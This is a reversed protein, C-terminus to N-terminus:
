WGRGGELSWETNEKRIIRFDLERGSSKVFALTALSIIFLMYYQHIHVQQM